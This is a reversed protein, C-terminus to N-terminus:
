TERWSYGVEAADSIDIKGDGGSGLDALPNYGSQGIQKGWAIGVRALDIINV